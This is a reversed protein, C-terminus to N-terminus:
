REGSCVVGGSLSHWRCMRRDDTVCDCVYGSEWAHGTVYRAGIADCIPPCAESTDTCALWAFLLPSFCALAFLAIGLRAM